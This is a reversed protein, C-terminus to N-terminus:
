IYEVIGCNNINWLKVIIYKIFNVTKISLNKGAVLYTFFLHFFLVIKKQSNNDLEIKIAEDFCEIAETNKKLIYLAHGKKFHFNPDDRKINISLDYCEIAKVYYSMEFYSKAKLCYFNTDNPDLSILM